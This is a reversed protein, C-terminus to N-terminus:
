QVKTEGKQAQVSVILNYLDTYLIVCVCVCLVLFLFVDFKEKYRDMKKVSEILVRVATGHQM